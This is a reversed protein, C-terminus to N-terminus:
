PTAPQVPTCVMPVCRYTHRIVERPEYVVRYTTVTRPEYRCETIPCKVVTRFTEPRYCCYKCGCADVCETPVYRVCNVERDIWRTTPICINVTCPVPVAKPVNVICKVPVCEIKYCVQPVCVPACPGCWPGFAKADTAVLGLLGVALVVMKM